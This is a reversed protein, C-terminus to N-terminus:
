QRANSIIGKISQYNRRCNDHDHFQFLRDQRKWYLPEMTCGNQLIVELERLTEGITETVKGFGHEEYSFWGKRYNKARYDERDFQFYIMPKQMYAYDFFVSSFDTVLIDTDILLEQVDYQYRSAIVLHDSGSNFCHLFKQMQHHPYFVAQFHYKELLEHFGPDMLLGQWNQFYSSKVFERESYLYLDHRWTPMLLIRQRLNNHEGPLPLKDYRCFGVLRVAEKPQGFCTKVFDAERDLACVFMDLRAKEYHLSAMDDKAIGHRLFIKKGKLLGLREIKCFFYENVTYGRVHTSILAEALIMALYHQPSGYRVTEGFQKVKGADPSDDTIVYRINQEPYHARIYTFLHFANDRADDGRESILWLHSFRANKKYFFSLGYFVFFIVAIRIVNLKFCIKNILVTLM